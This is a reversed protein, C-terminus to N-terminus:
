LDMSNCTGASRCTVRISVTSASPLLERLPHPTRYLHKSVSQRSPHAKFRIAHKEAWLALKSTIYQLCNDSHIGGGLDLLNPKVSM